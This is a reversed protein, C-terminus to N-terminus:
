PMPELSRSMGKRIIQVAELVPLRISEIVAVVRTDGRANFLMQAQNLNAGIGIMQRKIVRLDQRIDPDTLISQLPKYAASLSTARIYEHVSVNVARAQEALYALEDDDYKVGRARKKLKTKVKSCREGSKLASKPAGSTGVQACSKKSIQNTCRKWQQLLRQSM